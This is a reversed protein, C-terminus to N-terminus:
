KKNNEKMLAIYEVIFIWIMAIIMFLFGTNMWKDNNIAVWIAKYFCFFTILTPILATYLLKTM